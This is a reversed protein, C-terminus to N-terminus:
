SCFSATMMRVQQTHTRPKDDRQERSALTGSGVVAARSDQECIALWAHEPQATLPLMKKTQVAIKKINEEHKYLLM